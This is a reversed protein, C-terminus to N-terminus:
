ARAKTNANVVAMAKDYSLVDVTTGFRADNIYQPENTLALAGLQPLSNTRAWDDIIRYLGFAAAIRKANRTKGCGKPGHVILSPNM